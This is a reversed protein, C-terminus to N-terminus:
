PETQKRPDVGCKGSGSQEHVETLLSAKRGGAERAVLSGEQRVSKNMLTPESTPWIPMPSYLRNRISEYRDSQSFGARNTIRLRRRSPSDIAGKFKCRMCSLQSGINNQLVDSKPQGVEERGDDEDDARGDQDETLLVIHETRRGSTDLLYMVRMRITLGVSLDYKGVARGGNTNPSSGALAVPGEVGLDEETGSVTLRGAHADTGTCM